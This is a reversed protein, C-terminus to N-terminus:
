IIVININKNDNTCDTKPNISSDDEYVGEDNIDICLLTEVLILIDVLVIGDDDDDCCNDFNFSSAFFM